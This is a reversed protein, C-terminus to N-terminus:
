VEDLTLVKQLGKASSVADRRAIKKPKSHTKLHKRYQSRSSFVKRCPKCKINTALWDDDDSDDENAMITLPADNFYTFKRLSMSRAIMKKASPDNAPTKRGSLSEDLTSSFEGKTASQILSEGKVNEEQNKKPTEKRQVPLQDPKSDEESDGAFLSFIDDLDQLSLGADSAMLPRAEPLNKQQSEERIDALVYRVQAATPLTEVETGDVVADELTEYQPDLEIIHGVILAVGSPEQFIIETNVITVPVEVEVRESEGGRSPKLGSVTSSRRTKKTQDESAAVCRHLSLSHISVFRKGCLGCESSPTRLICQHMSLTTEKRFGRLCYSCTFPHKRAPAVEPTLNRLSMPDLDQVQHGDYQGQSPNSLPSERIQIVRPKAGDNRPTTQSTPPFTTTRRLHQPTRMLVPSALNSRFGPTVNVTSLIASISEQSNPNSQDYSLSPIHSPSPSPSVSASPTAQLFSEFSREFASLYSTTPLYAM